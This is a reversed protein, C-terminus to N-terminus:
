LWYDDDEKWDDDNDDDNTNFRFAFLFEWIGQHRKDQKIKLVNNIYIVFVETLFRIRKYYLVIEM